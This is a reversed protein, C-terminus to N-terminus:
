ARRKKAKSKKVADQTVEEVPRWGRELFKREETGSRASITIETKGDEMFTGTYFWKEM